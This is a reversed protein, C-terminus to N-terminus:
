IAGLWLGHLNCYERASVTKGKAVCFEYEPADGPNFYRKYVAGDVTLEVFLIYHEPTSPHLVSGVKVNYGNATETVVPVHKEVAADTSNGKIKKMEENCCSLAGAHAEAVEVVNGCVQCKYFEYRNTM